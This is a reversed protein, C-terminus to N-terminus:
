PTVAATRRKLERTYFAQDGESAWSLGGKLTSAGSAKICAHLLEWVQAERFLRPRTRTCIPVVKDHEGRRAYLRLLALAADLNPQADMSALVLAEVEGKRGANFLLSAKEMLLLPAEHPNASIAQTVLAEVTAVRTMAAERLTANATDRLVDRLSQTADLALSANGPTHQAAEIRQEVTALSSRFQPAPAAATQASAVPGLLFLACPVLRKM